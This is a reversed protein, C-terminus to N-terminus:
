DSGLDIVKALYVVKRHRLTKTQLAIILLGVEFCAKFFVNRAGPPDDIFTNRKLKHSNVKDERQLEKGVINLFIFGHLLYLPLLPPFDPNEILFFHPWM